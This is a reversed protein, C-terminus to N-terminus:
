KLTTVNENSSCSRQKLQVYRFERSHYEMIGEQRTSVDWNIKKFMLDEIEGTCEKNGIMYQRYM